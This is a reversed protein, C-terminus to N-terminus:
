NRRQILCRSPRCAQPMGIRSLRLRGVSLDLPKVGTQAGLGEALVLSEGIELNDLLGEVLPDVIVVGGPGFM